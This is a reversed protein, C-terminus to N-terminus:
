IAASSRSSWVGPLVRLPSDLTGKIADGSKSALRFSDSGWNSRLFRRYPRRKVCPRAFHCETRYEPVVRVEGDMPTLSGALMRLTTTKGAGNPGLLGVVEGAAVRLSLGDVAVVEGFRKVLGRAELM